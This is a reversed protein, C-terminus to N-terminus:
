KRFEYLENCNLSIIKTDELELRVSIHYHGHIWYKPKFYKYLAMCIKNERDGDLKLKKDVDFSIRLWQPTIPLLYQIFERNITHTCLIDPKYEFDCFDPM